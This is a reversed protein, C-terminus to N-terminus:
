NKGPANGMATLNFFLLMTQNPFSDIVWPKLGNGDPQSIIVITTKSFFGYGPTEAGPLIHRLVMLTLDNVVKLRYSFRFGTIM